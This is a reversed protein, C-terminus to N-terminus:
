GSFPCVPLFRAHRDFCGYVATQGKRYKKLDFLVTVPWHILFGVDDSKEECVPVLGAFRVHEREADAPCRIVEGIRVVLLFRVIDSLGRLVTLTLSIRASALLISAPDCSSRIPTLSPMQAM